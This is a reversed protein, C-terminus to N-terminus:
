SVADHDSPCGNPSSTDREEGSHRLSTCNQDHHGTRVGHGDRFFCPQTECTDFSDIYFAGLILYMLTLANQVRDTESAVAQCRQLCDSDSWNTLNSHPPLCSEAISRPPGGSLDPHQSHMCVTIKGGMRRHTRACSEGHGQSLKHLTARRQDELPTTLGAQTGAYQGHAAERWEDKHDCM